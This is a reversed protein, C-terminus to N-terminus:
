DKGTLYTEKLSWITPDGTKIWDDLTCRKIPSNFININLTKISLHKSIKKRYYPATV